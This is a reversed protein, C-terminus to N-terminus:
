WGHLVEQCPAASILSRKAKQRRKAPMEPRRRGHAPPQLKGPREALMRYYSHHAIVCRPKGRRLKGCRLVVVKDRVAPKVIASPQRRLHEVAIRITKGRYDYPLPVM